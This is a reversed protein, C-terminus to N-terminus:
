KLSCFMNFILYEIRLPLVLSQFKKQSDKSLHVIPYLKNLTTLLSIFICSESFIPRKVYPQIANVLQPDIIIYGLINHCVFSIFEQYFVLCM